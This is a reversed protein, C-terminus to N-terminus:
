FEEVTFFREPPPCENNYERTRTNCYACTDSLSTTSTSAALGPCNEQNHLKQGSGRAIWARQPQRPHVSHAEGYPGPVIDRHPFSEFRTCLHAVANSTFQTALNHTQPPVFANHQICQTLAAIATRQSDVVAKVHLRHCNKIYDIEILHADKLIAYERAFESNTSQRDRNGSTRIKCIYLFQTTIITVLIGVLIPLLQTQDFLEFWSEVPLDLGTSFIVLSM